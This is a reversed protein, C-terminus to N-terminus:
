RVEGAARSELTAPKVSRAKKDYTLGYPQNPSPTQYGPPPATLTDRPPEGTFPATEASSGFTSFIGGFLGKSGLESPRLARASEEPTKPTTAPASVAVQGRGFENPKLPRADEIEAEAATRPGRRKAAAERRRQIVEPDRPWAPNNRSVTGTEPPPLARNPPVVLPARERYNIQTDGDRQMGLDKMFRRFLKTDLPVNEEDTGQALACQGGFAVALAVGLVGALLRRKGRGIERM